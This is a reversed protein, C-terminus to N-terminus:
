ADAGFAARVAGVPQGGGLVPVAGLADLDDVDVGPFDVAGAARLAAALVAPRARGGGDLVKFALASGDPLGAAYVGEAGDKAVLGPVARMARTVDRGTGGVMEPHASIARAARALADDTSGASAGTSGTSVGARAIRGLARALGLVSTSFLPAGCGDVTVRLGAPDDGTLELLTDRIAGQLPHGPDRYTATDWGAAVCTALMAAHKGSCNQAIPEPGGGARQWAFAAPAHLPLDPTNQLADVGLGAAALVARVGDLHMPEGNHSAAALALLPDPLDLGHRLMAVLQLPKVSSRPWIPTTPDGVALVPEGDPGLVVLHGLHVSEVVGGRVVEALAAAARAVPAAAPADLVVAPHATALM